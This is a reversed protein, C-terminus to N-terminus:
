STRRIRGGHYRCRGIRRCLHGQRTIAGCIKPLPWYGSVLLPLDPAVVPGAAKVIENPTNRPWVAVAATYGLIRRVFGRRNMAEEASAKSGQARGEGAQLRDRPAPQRRQLLGDARRRAHARLREHDSLAPEVRTCHRPTPCRHPIDVAQKVRRARSHAEGKLEAKAEQYHKQFTAIM